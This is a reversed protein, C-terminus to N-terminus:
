LCTSICRDAWALMLDGALEIDEARSDEAPNHSVGDISPIFFMSAPCRHAAQQTDHGAMSPLTRFPINRQELLEALLGNLLADTPTAAVSVVPELEVAACRGGPVAPKAEAILSRLRAEITNLTAEDQGRIEVIASSRGPVVNPAGPEVQLRGCTIVADELDDVLGPSRAVVDAVPVLADVRRRMDTTGAHNAMGRGALKFRRIGVIGSVVGVRCDHSVLREGQEIHCELFAAAHIPPRYTCCGGPDPVVDRLRVGDTSQVELDSAVCEGAFVSSGFLGTNFRVGEEDRFIVLGVHPDATGGDVRCQLAHMGAVVGLAGDLWGGEIVTDLHSGILMIPRAGQLSDTPVIFTNGAADEERSLGPIAQLKGWVYDHAQDEFHTYALRTCGRQPTATIERIDRLADLM